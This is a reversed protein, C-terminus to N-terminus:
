ASAAAERVVVPVGRFTIPGEAPEVEPEPHGFHERLRAGPADLKANQDKMYEVLLKHTREDVAVEAPKPDALHLEKRKARIWEKVEAKESDIM